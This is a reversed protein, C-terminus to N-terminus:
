LAIAIAIVVGVIKVLDWAKDTVSKWALHEEVDRGIAYVADMM